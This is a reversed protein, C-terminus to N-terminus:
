HPKAVDNKEYEDVTQSSLKALIMYEEKSRPFQAKSVSEWTAFKEEAQKREKERVNNAPTTSVKKNPNTTKVDKRPEVGRHSADQEEVLSWVESRWKRLGDGNLFKMMKNWCFLLVGTGLIVTILINRTSKDSWGEKLKETKTKQVKKRKPAADSSYNWHTQFQWTKCHISNGTGFQFKNKTAHAWCRSWTAFLSYRM